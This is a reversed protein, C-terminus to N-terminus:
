RCKRDPRILGIPTDPAPSDKEPRTAQWPREHGQRRAPRTLLDFTLIGAIGVVYCALDHWAFETGILWRVVGLRAYEAPIGTAQFTEVAFCWALALAAISAPHLRRLVLAAALYAAAAYLADGLSKDYLLWGIPHLRSLIGLAVIFVLVVALRFM